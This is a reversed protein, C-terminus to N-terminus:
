HSSALPTDREPLFALEVWVPKHDSTGRNDEVKGRGVPVFGRAVVHDFAWLHHTAGIGNTPWSYGHEEFLGALGGSNFDGAVIVHDWGDLAELLTEAQDKQGSFWVELPTSLHLAAIRVPHLGVHVTGLVAARQTRRSWSRHPLILKEDLTIPWRSLLVNGFNHKPVPHFTAPYYVWHMGLANAVREAAAENMEQLVVVDARSLEPDDHFLRIIGDLHEAYGANFTAVRVAGARSSAASVPAPPAGAFRPGAPDNYNIGNACGALLLTGLLLRTM